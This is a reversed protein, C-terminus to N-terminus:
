APDTGPKNLMNRCFRSDQDEAHGCPCTVVVGRSTDAKSPRGCRSCRQTCQHGNGKVLQGDRAASRLCQKLVSGAAVVRNRAAAKERRSRETGKPPRRALEALETDDLVITGHEDCVRKAWGRYLERRRRVGRASRNRGLQYLHRNKRRWWDVYLAFRKCPDALGRGALWRDVMALPAFLDEDRAFRDRRWEEWWWRPVAWTPFEQRTLTMAARALKAHARWQAIHKTAERLEASARDPDDVLWRRLEGRVRDFHHDALEKVGDEYTIADRIDPDIVLEDERGADDVLRAVRLSGDRKVRWGLNIAARTSTAPAMRADGQEVTLQLEFRTRTAQRKAVLYAWLLRGTPRRHLLANFEVWVPQPVRTNAGPRVESGIRIRVRTQAHRRHTHTGDWQEAPLEDIEVHGCRIGFPGDGPLDIGGVLQVGVKGEGTFRHFKPPGFKSTRFAQEVAAEVALYTGPQLGCSGRLGGDSVRKRRREAEQRVVEDKWYDSWEPEALMEAVVASRAKRINAPGTPNLDNRVCWAEIREKEALKAPELDAKAAARHPKCRAGVDSRAKLLEKPARKRGGAEDIQRDLDALQEELADLEPYYRRRVERYDDRRGDEVLSNYYRNARWLQERFARANEVPPWAHYTLVRVRTSATM